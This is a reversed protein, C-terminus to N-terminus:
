MFNVFRRSIIKELLFYICLEVEDLHGRSIVNHFGVICSVVIVNLFQLFFCICRCVGLVLECNLGSDFEHLIIARTIFCIRGGVNLHALTKSCNLVLLFVFLIPSNIRIKIIIVFTIILGMFVKFSTLFSVSFVIRRGFDKHGGTFHLSLLTILDLNLNASSISQHLSVHFLLSVVRVFQIHDVM